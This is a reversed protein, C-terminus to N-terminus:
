KLLCNKEIIYQIIDKKLGKRYLVEHEDIIGKAKKVNLSKSSDLGWEIVYVNGIRRCDERNEM